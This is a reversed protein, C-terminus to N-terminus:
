LGTTAVLDSSYKHQNLSISSPSRHVELSLFYMLPGIDKTHFSKSFHTKLQAFLTSDSGTIVIDDIYVLLIVIGM